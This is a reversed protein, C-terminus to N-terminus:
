QRPLAIPTSPRGIATIGPLRAEARDPRALLPTMGHAVVALGARENLAVETPPVLRSQGEDDFTHAPLDALDLASDLDFAWGHERFTAGWAESVGFAASGWVRHAPHGGAGSPLEEFPFSSIPDTKKGYPLRMLIRPLCLAISRGLPSDRLQDWLEVGPVSALPAGTADASLPPRLSALDAVTQVGLAAPAADALLAGGARVAIAGLAALLHLDALTLDFAFDMAVASWGREDGAILRHLPSTELDGNLAPLASALDEKRADLLAIQLDADTDLARALRDVGRWTAELARFRPASLIGRMRRTLAEDLAALVVARRASVDPVIHPRVVSAIFTDAVESGTPVRQSVSVRARGLLREMTADVTEAPATDEPPAKAGTESGPPRTAPESNHERLWQEAAVFEEDAPTPAMLAARLKRPAEFLSLKAFLADPHFDDLSEFRAVETETGPLAIPLAVKLAAVARDLNGADILLPRGPTIAKDPAGGAAARGSFDGILLLRFPSGDARRRRPMGRAGFGLELLLRESM